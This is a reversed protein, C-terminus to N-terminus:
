DKSGEGRAQESVVSSKADASPPTEPLSGPAARKGLTLLLEPPIEGKEMLTALIKQRERMAVEHNRDGSFRANGRSRLKGYIDGGLLASIDVKLAERRAADSVKDGNIPTVKHKPFIIALEPCVRACAPCNAKCNEPAHVTVRRDGGVGYVGFLCFGLCQLCHNCRDFDIVPFWPIWETERLDPVTEDRSAKDRSTQVSSVPRAEPFANSPLELRLNVLGADQPLPAGAAAFLWKVARPHCAAVTLNGEAVLRGLLPDRRGALECLDPVSHLQGGKEQAQLCLARVAAPDLLGAYACQCVLINRAPPM